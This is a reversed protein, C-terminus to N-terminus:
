ELAAWVVYLVANIKSFLDAWMEHSTFEEESLGTLTKSQAEITAPLHGLVYMGKILHSYLSEYVFWRSEVPSELGTDQHHAWWSFRCQVRIAICRPEPFSPSTFLDPVCRRSFICPDDYTEHVLEPSMRHETALTLCELADENFKAECASTAWEVFRKILIVMQQWADSEISEVNISKAYLHAVCQKWVASSFLGDRDRISALQASSLKKM